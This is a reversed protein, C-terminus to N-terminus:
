ATSRMPRFTTGQSVARRVLSRTKTTTASRSNRLPASLAAQGDHRVEVLWLPGVTATEAGHLVDAFSGHLEIADDATDSTVRLPADFHGVGRYFLYKESEGSSATLMAAGVERPATWVHDTTEPGNGATGVQVRQWDLSGVTRRTLSGARIRGKGLGPAVAKAQPFFETLWGGRFDVHVDLDLPGAQGAPPYFYLVPTELRLTVDPNCPPIGKSFVSPTLGTPNSALLDGRLNHVFRPLPEDDVNLGGIATGDDDQLVTFTGWEHVM